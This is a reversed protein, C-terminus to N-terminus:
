EQQKTADLEIINKYSQHNRSQCNYQLRKQSVYNERKLNKELRYEYLQINLKIFINILKYLINIQDEVRM